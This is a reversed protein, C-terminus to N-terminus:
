QVKAETKETFHCAVLHNADISRLPPNTLRCLDEAFPCRPNFTCGSPPDIVSPVEGRIDQKLLNRKLPNPIPASAILSITYPHRPKAIIEEAPGFEVLNGTYMVAISDALYEAVAINHTILLYTLNFEKQLSILLNLIQAQISADLASTPEDLVVLQPHTAIARAIAVRQKQGGSIERPLRAAFQVSLGVAELSKSVEENVRDRGWKLLCRLPEGISDGIKVRPDLSSEPDQFVMQMSKYLEGSKLKNRTINKGDFIVEGETAPTLQTIVRALTTKGCGSEGVVAVTNGRQVELTVDDVARVYKKPARSFPYANKRIPYYKRLGHIALITDQADRHAPETEMRPM